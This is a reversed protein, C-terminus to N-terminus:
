RWQQVAGGGDGGGRDIRCLCSDGHLPVMFDKQIIIAAEAAGAMVVAVAATVM